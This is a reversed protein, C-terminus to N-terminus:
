FMLTLPLLPLSTGVIVFYRDYTFHPRYHRMMGPGRSPIIIVTGALSGGRGRRRRRLFSLGDATLTIIPHEEASSPHRLVERNQALLRQSQVWMASSTGVMAPLDAISSCVLGNSVGGQHETSM